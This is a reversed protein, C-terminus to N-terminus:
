IFQSPIPSGRVMSSLHERYLGPVCLDNSLARSWLHLFCILLTTEPTSRLNQVSDGTHAMLLLERRAESLASSARFGLYELLAMHTELVRTLNSATEVKSQRYLEDLSYQSTYILQFMREAAKVLSVPLLYDSPKENNENAVSNRIDVAKARIKGARWTLARLLDIMVENRKELEAGSSSAIWHVTQQSSIPKAGVSKGVHFRLLHQIAEEMSSYYTARSCVTCDELSTTLEGLGHLKAYEIHPIERIVYASSDHDKETEQLIRNEDCLTDIIQKSNHTM